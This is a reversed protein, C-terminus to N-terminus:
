TKSINARTDADIYKRLEQLLPEEKFYDAGYELNFGYDFDPPNKGQNHQIITEAKDLAKVFAAESSTNSSYELWLEMLEREQQEPLMAFIKRVAEEERKHRADDDLQLAASVDGEYVEGLDHVLCMKLVRNMDLEPVEEALVAALMALRWSHEATSEQRGEATWATRLTSKLQETEQIFKLYQIIKEMRIRREQKKIYYWM